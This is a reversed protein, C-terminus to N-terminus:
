VAWMKLPRAKFAIFGPPQRVQFDRGDFIAGWQRHLQASASGIVAIAGRRSAALPCLGLNDALSSVLTLLGGAAAVVAMCGSASAYTGRLHAACDPHGNLIAWDALVLSCDVEGWIQPRAGYEALFLDLRDM